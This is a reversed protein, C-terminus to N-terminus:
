LYINWREKLVCNKLYQRTHFDLFMGDLVAPLLFHTPNTAKKTKAIVMEDPLHHIRQVMAARISPIEIGIFLDGEPM